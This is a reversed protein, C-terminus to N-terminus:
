GGRIQKLLLLERYFQLAIDNPSIVPENAFGTLKKFANSWSGKGNELMKALSTNVPFFDHIGVLDYDCSLSDSYNEYVSDIVEYFGLDKKAKKASNIIRFLIAEAAAPGARYDTLEVIDKSALLGAINRELENFFKKGDDSYGGIYWWLMEAEERLNEVENVISAYAKQIQNAGLAIKNMDSFSSELIGVLAAVDHSEKYAKMTADFSAKNPVPIQPIKPPDFPARKALDLLSNNAFDIFRPIVVPNRNGKFAYVLPSVCALFSGKRIEEALICMALVAMERENEVASFSTDTKRFIEVFWDIEDKKASGFYIRTLEFIKQYGDDFSIDKTADRRRDIVEASANLSCEKYLDAFNFQDM